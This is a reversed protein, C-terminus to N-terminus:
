REFTQIYNVTFTFDQIPFTHENKPTLKREITSCYSNILLRVNPENTEYEQLRVISSRPIPISSIPLIWFTIVPGMSKDVELLKAIRKM